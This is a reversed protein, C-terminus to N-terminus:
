TRLSRRKPCLRHTVVLGMRMAPPPMPPSAAASASARWPKATFTRSCAFDSPSIPAPMWSPGLAKLAKSAKAIPSCARDRATYISWSTIISAVSSLSTAHM